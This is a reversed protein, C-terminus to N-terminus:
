TSKLFTLVKENFDQYNTLFAFHDFGNAVFYQSNLILKDMLYCDILPTQDDESGWYLYVPSKITKLLNTLDQNVVNVLVKKMMDSSNKYDISGSNKILDDYFQSYIPTKCLFKMFKYHYQKMKDIFTKKPKIGASGTLVIKDIKDPIENALIIAIRGGFSHAIINVKNLQLYKMFQEIFKAYDFITYPFNPEDSKGFGPLDVSIIHYDNKFFEISKGFSLGDQGWGHLFLLTEKGIENIEFYNVDINNINIKKNM